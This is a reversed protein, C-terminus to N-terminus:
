KGICFNSFIKGLIDDPVTEGILPGLAYLAQRIDSAFLDIEPAVVARQLHGSADIVASLHDLRTLLLEGQDRRTWKDCFEIIRDVAEHIGSGSLASTAIWSTLKLESCPHLFADIESKSVKDAKTLIGITKSALSAGSSATVLTEWQAKVQSFPSQPDVIFLILDAERLSKHSREIGIIEIPNDTTRLGATDELRLTLTSDKGRLILKERIVDRTTGEIESVISRDEGLLSNFFSSKGANPLGIFAVKIGEQLRIGRDFSNRLKELVQLVPKVEIKLRPLSVEEVDQDAFDIGVEGLTAIRRLNLSLEDLLSNQSGSMKELALSVAGDNSAEILDAVAQAQFLSMKGNKVARFSFEGPLAQRVGWTQLTEMLRHAIYSGGHVNFEVLDEGSYSNPGPFKVFLADDLLQGNELYLPARILKRPELTDSSALHAVHCLAEFAKPGSARVIAIAGGLQTSIGAITDESLYNSRVSM